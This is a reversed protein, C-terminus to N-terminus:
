SSAAPSAPGKMSEMERLPQPPDIGQSLRSAVFTVVLGVLMALTRHPFEFGDPSPWPILAPIGIDPIGSALRIVTSVALGLACGVRNVKPDFLGLVLQPFLMVYVLDGCLYWLATVSQVLLAFVASGIGFVVILARSLQTVSRPSAEPYIFRKWGNWAVMTAASLISADMSAMVAATVMGLGATGIMPPLAYRLLYPLALAANGKVGAEPDGFLRLLLEPAHDGARDHLLTPWDVGLACLAILFPPIAMAGCIWASWVSLKAASEVDRAALVRQFYINWPIGGLLLVLTWDAYSLWEGASGPPALVGKKAATGVLVTEISPWGGAVAWAFPLCGLLGVLMLVLQAVDTYAVARLGGFVTWGVVLMASVGISVPVSIDLVAGVTTGLAVLVAASWLLEALVAPIMLVAALPKGFRQEFPDIVTAYKNQRMLRAFFWGGIALSFSYAVGAQLGWWGGDTWTREITGNIYGGGVWTATMTMLGIWLPLSRSALLADEVDDADKAVHGAWVGIGFVGGLTCTLLAIGPWYVDGM